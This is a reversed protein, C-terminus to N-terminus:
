SAVTVDRGTHERVYAAEDSGCRRIATSGLRIATGTPLENVLAALQVMTAAPHWGVQAIEVTGGPDFRAQWGAPQRDDGALVVALSAHAPRLASWRALSTLKDVVLTLQELQSSWPSRSPAALDAVRAGLKADHAITVVLERLHPLV